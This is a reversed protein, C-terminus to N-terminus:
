RRSQHPETPIQTEIVIGCPRRCGRFMTLDGSKKNHIWRQEIARTRATDDAKKTIDRREICGKGFVPTSKKNSDAVRSNNDRLFRTSEADGSNMDIVIHRRIGGFTVICHSFSEIRAGNFPHGLPSGQHV